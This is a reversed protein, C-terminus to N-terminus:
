LADIKTAVPAQYGIGIIGTHAKGTCHVTEDAVIACGYDLGRQV